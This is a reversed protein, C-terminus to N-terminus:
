KFILLSNVIIKLLLNNIRCCTHKKTKTKQLLCMNKSAPYCYQATDVETVVSSFTNKRGM